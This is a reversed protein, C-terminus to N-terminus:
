LKARAVLRRLGGLPDSLQWLPLEFGRWVSLDVGRILTLVYYENLELIQDYSFDSFDRLQRDHDFLGVKGLQRALNWLDRASAGSRKLLRDDMEVILFLKDADRLLRTAERLAAVEGGEIDLKILIQNALSGQTLDDLSLTETAVTQEDRCKVESENTLYSQGSAIGSVEFVGEGSRESLAM